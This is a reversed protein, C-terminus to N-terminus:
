PRDLRDNLVLAFSQQEVLFGVLLGSRAAALTLGVHAEDPGESGRMSCRQSLLPRDLGSLPVWSNRQVM